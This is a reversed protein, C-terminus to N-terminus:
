NMLKTRSGCSLMQGTRFFPGIKIFFTSDSMSFKTRNLEVNEGSFYPLLVPSLQQINNGLGLQGYFNNGCLM